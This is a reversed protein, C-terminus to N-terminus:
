ALGLRRFYAAAFCRDALAFAWEQRKNEPVFLGATALLPRQKLGILDFSPEFGTDHLERLIHQQFTGLTIEDAQPNIGSALISLSLTRQPDKITAIGAGEGCARWRLTMKDGPIFRVEFEQPNKWVEASFVAILDTAGQIKELLEYAYPATQRVECQATLDVVTFEKVRGTRVTGRAPDLM